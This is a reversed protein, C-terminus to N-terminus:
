KPYEIKVPLKQRGWQLAEDHSSFYLDIRNRGKIAGGRDEVRGWGWGPVYMRTGFPYYRTDAAITGDEPLLSWPLIRLPIMWPHGATDMSFLGPQPEQPDTGSATLGTYPRGAGSGASVYRNWFDLKLYSWSGREWSCCVSCGCYATTEMMKSVPEKACGGLILTALGLLCITHSTFRSTNFNFNINSLVM